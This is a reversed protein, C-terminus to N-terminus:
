SLPAATMPYCLLPRFHAHRGVVRMQRSNLLRVSSAYRQEMQTRVETKRLLHLAMVSTPLFAWGEYDCYGSKPYSFFAVSPMPLTKPDPLRSEPSALTAFKWGGGGEVAIGASGVVAEVETDKM